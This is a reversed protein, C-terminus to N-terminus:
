SVKIDLLKDPNINKLDEKATGGFRRVRASYELLARELHVPSFDPYLTDTFYLEAYVAQYPMIGSLRKEGATRIILDPDPIDHTDLYESITEETINKINEKQIVNFARVIDDRGGYDLCLQLNLGSNNKSLEALEDMAKILDKPLRDRRGLHRFRINKEKLDKQLADVNELFIDFIGKIEEKDRNWNETSFAWFSLHKIGINGAYDYLARMKELTAAKKHGVWPKWGRKRAWRRNGDPIIVLHKPVIQSNKKPVLLKDKVRKGL